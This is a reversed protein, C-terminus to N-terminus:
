ENISLTRMGALGANYPSALSALFSAQPWKLRFVITSADPAEIAEVNTYQGKRMSGVNPPPFVIKDYSTKVDRSSMEAGDHFKVGRRLKLRWRHPEVQAWETALGPELKMDPTSRAVLPEYINGLVGLQLTEDLSYPDLTSVDGVSAYRFLKAEVPAALALGLAVLSALFRM